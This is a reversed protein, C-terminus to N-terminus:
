MYTELWAICKEHKDDHEWHGAVHAIEHFLIRLLSKRRGNEDSGSEISAFTPLEIFIWNDHAYARADYGGFPKQVIHCLGDDPALCRRLLELEKPRRTTNRVDAALKNYLKTCQRDLFLLRDITQLRMPDNKLVYFTKTTSDVPEWLTEPEDYFKMARETFDSSLVGDEHGFLRQIFRQM